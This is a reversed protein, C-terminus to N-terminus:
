LLSVLVTQYLRTCGPVAQGLRTCGPVATSSVVTSSGTGYWFRLARRGSSQCTSM